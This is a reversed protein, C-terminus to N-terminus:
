VVCSGFSAPGAGHVTNQQVQFRKIIKDIYSEVAKYAERRHSEPNKPQFGKESSCWPDM